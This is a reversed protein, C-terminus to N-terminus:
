WTSHSIHSNSLTSISTFSSVFCWYKKVVGIIALFRVLFHSNRSYDFHFSFLWSFLYILAVVWWGHICDLGTRRYVCYEPGLMLRNVQAEWEVGAQGSEALLEWGATKVWSVHQDSGRRILLSSAIKRSRQENSRLIAGDCSYELNISYDCGSLRMLNDPHRWRGGRARASDLWIRKASLTYKKSHRHSPEIWQELERHNSETARRM